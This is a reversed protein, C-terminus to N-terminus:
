VEYDNQSANFDDIIQTIVTMEAENGASHTWLPIVTKGDATTNGGGKSCGSLALPVIAAAALLMLVRKRSM